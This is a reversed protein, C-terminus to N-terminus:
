NLPNVSALSHLDSGASDGEGGAQPAMGERERKGVCHGRIVGDLNVEADTGGFVDGRIEVDVLLEIAVGDVEMQAFKWLTPQDIVRLLVVRELKATDKLWGCGLILDKIADGPLNHLAGQLTVVGGDEGVPLRTTAFGERDGPSRGRKRLPPDDRPGNRHDVLGEGLLRLELPGRPDGVQLDVVLFPAIEEVTALVGAGQFLKWLHGHHFVGVFSNEFSQLHVDCVAHLIRQVEQKQPVQVPYGALRRHVRGGGPGVTDEGNGNFCLFRAAGHNSAGLKVEDVKGPALPYAPRPDLTRLECLRLVDVERQMEQLLNDNCQRLLGLTPTVM